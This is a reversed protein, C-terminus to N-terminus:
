HYQRRHSALSSLRSCLQRVVKEDPRSGLKQFGDLIQIANASSVALGGKKHAADLIATPWRESAEAQIPQRRQPKKAREAYRVRPSRGIAPRISTTAFFRPNTALLDHIRYLRANKIALLRSPPLSM